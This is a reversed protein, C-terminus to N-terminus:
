KTWSEAEVEKREEELEQMAQAFQADDPAAGHWSVQNEMFSVGKGKVTKMLIAMPKGQGKAAHFGAFAKELEEFDHGNITVVHFGFAEFKKDVPEMNMVDRTRGDIQLGNIDVAICLNDLRYKAAYAAAEWVLGEELEGDGLLAYINVDKKLVNKEANAMGAAASFGQGLSGTSFDVGPTMNMNPHGQLHSGLQRLTVLDKQPFYGKQALVAYLAPACHGKSLVFRDRNEDQPHKPDIRMEENYLYTMLEMSSMSGGPHGSGAAHIALIVNQRGKNAFLKLERIREPTM